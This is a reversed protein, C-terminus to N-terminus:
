WFFFMRVKNPHKEKKDTCLVPISCPPLSHCGLHSDSGGVVLARRASRGLGTIREMAFPSYMSERKEKDVPTRSSCPPLSHCGLHSDSGGVVLARRASRGLGTIREMAFPSYMSERKEKDVPTRNSTTPASKEFGEGDVENVGRGSPSAKM